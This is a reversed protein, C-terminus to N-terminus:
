SGRKHRDRDPSTSLVQSSQERVKHMLCGSVLRRLSEGVAIPRVGGDDKKLATLPAGALWPALAKPGRGKALINVVATLSGILGTSENTNPVRLLEELHNPRLGSGCAASAKPFRTAGKLVEEATVETWGHPLHASEVANYHFTDTDPVQQPHKGLLAASTEDSPSAIGTSQLAQAAKGYAGEKALRIARRANNRQQNEPTLEASPRGTSLELTDKWLKMYQKQDWLRLRDRFTQAHSATGDPTRRSSAPRPNGLIAAPFLLVKTFAEEAGASGTPALAAQRLTKPLATAIEERLRRPTHMVLPIHTSCIDSLLPLHQADVRAQRPQSPAPPPEQSDPVSQPPAPQTVAPPDNPLTEPEPPPPATNVAASSEQANHHDDDAEGSDATEDLTFSPDNDESSNSQEEESEEDDEEDEDESEASQPTSPEGSQDVVEDETKVDDEADEEEENNTDPMILQDNALPVM